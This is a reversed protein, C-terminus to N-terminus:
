TGPHSRPIAPPCYASPRLPVLWLPASLLRARLHLYASLTSCSQPYRLGLGIYLIIEWAM